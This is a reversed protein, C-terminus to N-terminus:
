AKSAMVDAEFKQKAREAAFTKIAPLAAAVARYRERQALILKRQPTTVGLARMERSTAVHLHEWSTFKGAVDAVKESLIQALFATIKDQDATWVFVPLNVHPRNRLLVGPFSLEVESFANM